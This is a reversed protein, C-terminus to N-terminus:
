ARLSPLRMWAVVTAAAALGATVLFAAAVSASEVLAGSVAGGVSFGAVAATAEWTFAETVTGARALRGVLLYSTAAWPAFFCGTVLLLAFMVPMSDALALPTLALAFLASIRVLLDSHNVTWRRAGFWLGGAMSSTSLGALLIGSSAASGHLDAFAPLTVELTGWAVGFAASVIVLTRIAPSSLAWSRARDSADLGRWRRSAPTAAFAFTGALALVGTSALAAEPSIAATLVAVLLPGVIFIVEQMVAELAYATEVLDDTLEGLLTRLSAFLPPLLVGFPIACAILPLPEPEVEAVIILAAVSAPFGIGCVVLVRTQGLQDVLRGLVPGTAASAFAQTAAVAGAVAYSGNQESVLLVISLSVM